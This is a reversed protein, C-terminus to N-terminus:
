QLQAGTCLPLMMLSSLNSLPDYIGFGSHRIFLSGILLWLGVSSFSVRQHTQHHFCCFLGFTARTCIVTCARPPQGTARVGTDPSSYEPWWGGMNEGEMPTTSESTSRPDQFSAQGDFEFDEQLSRRAPSGLKKSRHQGSGRAQALEEELEQQRTVLAPDSCGPFFWDDEILETGCPSSSTQTSSINISPLHVSNSPCFSTSHSLPTSSASAHLRNQSRRSSVRGVACVCMEFLKLLSHFCSSLPLFLESM